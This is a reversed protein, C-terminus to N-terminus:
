GAPASRATEILTHAIAAAKYALWEVPDARYNREWVDLLNEMGEVQGQSLSTGFVGSERRRLYTYFAARNM